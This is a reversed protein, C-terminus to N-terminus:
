CRGTERHRRDGRFAAFEEDTTRVANLSQGASELGLAIDPACDAARVTERAPSLAIQCYHWNQSAASRKRSRERDAAGARQRPVRHSRRPKPVEGARHLRVRSGSTRRDIRARSLDVRSGRLNRAQREPVRNESRRGASPQSPTRPRCPGERIGRVIVATRAPSRSDLRARLLGSLEPDPFADGRGEAAGRSLDARRRFIAMKLDSARWCCSASAFGRMKSERAFLELASRCLRRSQAHQRRPSCSPSLFRRALWIQNGERSFLERADRFLKRARRSDREHSAAMALSTLAKAAEYAMGLKDFGTLARNALELVEDSLNLELYIEARDLDCLASHYADGTRESQEQAARFLDLAHTYEGRLYYLYAINYDAQAVLLPMDHALCYERADHYAKLAKQFENLSTYCVAMNSLVAAVDQPEGVRALQEHAREYLAIAEQFRDQRYLINGLNSDLRALRLRDGHREFIARAQGAATFAEEYRGLCILSQLVGGSLTRGLDVERGLTRFLERAGDYRELAESYKGRILLVHGM